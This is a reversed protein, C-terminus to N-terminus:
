ANERDSDDNGESQSDRNADFALKALV